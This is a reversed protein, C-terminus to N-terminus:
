PSLAEIAGSVLANMGAIDFYPTHARGLRVVVLDQSPVVVVYQGLNGLAYFADPPVDPMLKMDEGSSEADPARHNIWWGAGYNTNLTPMTSRQVWDPPLLRQGGPAVGDHLFLLGLRAWDHPSGLMYHAGIPTGTEDSEVTMHQMGLPVFLREHAFQQMAEAGGITDRLLRSVLHTTASSYFWREGPPYRMEASGAFSAMDDTYVYLMHNSPDFGSGTEDLDLGTTMRLAHELTITPSTERSSMLATDLRLRGDAVLIGSLTNIVSKALSFGLLPTEADYGEAYREGVIVGEHLVVVAKTNRVRGRRNEAFAADLVAQMEPSTQSVPLPMAPAAEFAPIQAGAQTEETPVLLCGDRGRYVALSEFGGAFTARVERRERDVEYNVAAAVSKFGPRPKLSEEFTQDPDRASVFTESCLDHATSGTVVRAALDPRILACGCVSLMAALLLLRLPKM